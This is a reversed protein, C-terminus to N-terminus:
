FILPTQDLEKYIVATLVTTGWKDSDVPVQIHECSQIEQIKLDLM